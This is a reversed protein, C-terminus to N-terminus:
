DMGNWPHEQCGNDRQFDICGIRCGGAITLFNGLMNGYVMFKGLWSLDKGGFMDAFSKIYKSVTLLAEGVGKAISGFNIEKFSKFFDTIEQPHAKIWGKVSKTMNDIGSIVYDDLLM